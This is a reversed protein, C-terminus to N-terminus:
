QFTIGLVQSLWLSGTIGTYIIFVPVSCAIIDVFRIIVKGFSISHWVEFAIVAIGLIPNLIFHLTVFFFSGLDGGIILTIWESLLIWSTFIGIASLGAYRKKIISERNMKTRM